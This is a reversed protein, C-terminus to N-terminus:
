VLDTLRQPDHLMPAALDGVEAIRGAASRITWRNSTLEPDDLEDWRIPMSVPASAAARVSYPAVLTKNV